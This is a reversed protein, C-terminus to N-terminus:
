KHEERSGMQKLIDTEKEIITELKTLRRETTLIYEQMSVNLEKLEKSLRVGFYFVLIAWTPFGLAQAIPILDSM